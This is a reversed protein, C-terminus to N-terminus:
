NKMEINRPNQRNDFFTLIFIRSKYPEIKYFFSNNKDIHAKRIEDHSFSAPFIKPHKKIINIIKQTRLEFQKIEKLTWNRSLYDIVNFYTIRAKATWIVEM